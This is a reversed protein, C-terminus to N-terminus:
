KDKFEEMKDETNISEMDETDGIYATELGNM